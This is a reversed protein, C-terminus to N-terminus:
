PGRNPKEPGSRADGTSRPTAGYSAADGARLVSYRYAGYGADIRKKALRCKGGIWVRHLNTAVVACRAMVAHSLILGHVDLCRKAKFLSGPRQLAAHRKYC